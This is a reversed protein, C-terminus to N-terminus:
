KINKISSGIDEGIELRVPYMSTFWGVTRTIDINKDIEERGHGELVIHNVKEGTIEKLAYGLATLLIDNIETNYARNSGKLLKDTEEKSLEISSFNKSDESEVLKNIEESKRDYDSLVNEWYEREEQRNDGYRRIVDGWQRYSSGKKGLEKGEYIERLDETIIRWSVADVVLHHLAFCVRASGDKYGYIYGISVIPGKNLNFGRQWRTLEEELVEKLKGSGEKGLERIDLIKLEVKSDEKNYYQVYNNAKDKRYRFRLSDHYELLKDIGEQLNKKDLEPVKIMFSQNWHNQNKYKNNFFWRQIPLLEAEGGLRGQEAKIEIKNREKSMLENDYLREISKHTFIDKISIQIDLKQRLRSVLQISVISDGGLRFFNDQIGIKSKEIGLVEGWIECMKEEVENRPAVYSDENTLEPDPLSKRDLKGNITLPLEKMYVLVSPVMYEPLKSGIYNLVKEEDVEEEAVYYGVLYKNDVTKDKHERAIVVSQKIGEYELLSNEIEGLEIRYGRIKVQFDNRGIYEINGDSLYRALDGTKYIRSKRGKSIDEEAAYPNAIFREATLGARGLYGRAIGEGGIYLEGIGGIPVVNLNKDLIYTKLDPIRNGIYSNKDLDHKQIIKYTVHVTTETIGYMNILKPVDYGYYNFWSKLQLLNLAEGGFIVYRLNALKSTIGKNIAIDIFQYFLSPTQNLVTIYKQKCLYYFENLDRIQDRSIILLRGGYILAGWIEWITFDFIYSHLLVWVDRYNFKYWNDTAKFLRIINNHFQMVGKPKGTTGSTYIVYALNNSTAGIKINNSDELSLEEEIEKSDIAIVPDIM